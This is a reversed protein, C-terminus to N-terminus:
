KGNRKDRLIIIGSHGHKLGLKKDIEALSNGNLFLERIKASISESHKKKLKKVPNSINILSSRMEDAKMGKKYTGNKRCLKILEDWKMTKLDKM